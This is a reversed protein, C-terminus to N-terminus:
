LNQCSKEEFNGGSDGITSPTTQPESSVRVRLGSNLLCNREVLQAVFGFFVSSCSQIFHTTM